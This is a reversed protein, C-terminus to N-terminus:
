GQVSDQDGPNSKTQHSGSKSSEAQRSGDILEELFYVPDFRDMVSRVEFMEKDPIGGGYPDIRESLRTTVQLGDKANALHAEFRLHFYVQLYGGTGVGKPYNGQFAWLGLAMRGKTNRAALQVVEAIWREYRVKGGVRAGESPFWGEEILFQELKAM